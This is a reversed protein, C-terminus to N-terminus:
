IERYGIAESLASVEEGHASGWVGIAVARRSFPLRLVLSRGTRYPHETERTTGPEVLPFLKTPYLMAHAFLRGSGHVKPM